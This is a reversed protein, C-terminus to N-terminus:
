CIPLPANHTEPKQTNLLFVRFLAVGGVHSATTKMPNINTPTPTLMPESLLATAGGARLSRAEVHPQIDLTDPGVVGIVLLFLM